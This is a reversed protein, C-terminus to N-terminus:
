QAGGKKDTALVAVWDALREIGRPWNQPNEKEKLHELAQRIAQISKAGEKAFFNDKSREGYEKEGGITEIMAADPQGLAGLQVLLTEPTQDRHTHLWRAVATFRPDLKEPLKGLEKEWHEMFTDKHPKVLRMQGTLNIASAQLENRREYIPHNFAVRGFGENCRLGIGTAELQGLRTQWDDPPALLRFWAVAGAVLATDRWRPLGLTANFSDVVCTRAYADDIKVPGLGLVPELWEATFGTAQQGWPNAIIADTLLTLSLPQTVDTVREALALQIWTQPCADCQELWATVQGYGRRRAKGLRWTLPSKETVGTMEQLREWTVEDACLLEGVFYQGANLVTYGYLQGQKVRGSEEDVQIHLESARGPSVTYPSQRRLVVFGDIPELRNACQPCEKHETALYVGHGPNKGEWPVVSCTLLGLPAPITPYLYDSQEQAPYLMPFTVGGRRFLAVFDHYTDLDSLNGREAALNALTGLLASGPISPRADFQNGAPAREAILLPEDLRLIVRVRVPVGSPISIVQVDAKIGPETLPTPNGQLWKQEFRALFWDEWSQDTPKPKDLGTVDTLHIVCEGLGRRRSRGLQRVNRAAAVLLAAEDLAAVDNKPCTVTFRFVQGAHGEEQSFLKRPEARRTRQDIRVRQVAQADASKREIPHASAIHWRKAQAPSGFLRQLADKNADEDNDNNCHRSLPELKLLRYAGDRLLGTLGSGRLVLSGNAERLLASDVGFGTGYGAGSHYDSKLTIEFTLELSM